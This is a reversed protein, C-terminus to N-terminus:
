GGSIHPLVSVEDGDGVLTDPKAPRGNVLIVVDEVTVDPPLEIIERVPVRGEVEVVKERGGAYDALYGFYKVRVKGV